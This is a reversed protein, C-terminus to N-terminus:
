FDPSIQRPDRGDDKSALVRFLEEPEDFYIFHVSGDCFAAQIGRPHNGRSQGAKAAKIHALLEDLTIDRPEAWEIELGPVEIVLFTNSSGDPIEAFSTQQSGDFVTGPGTIVVYSTHTHSSTADSPCRYFPISMQTLPRNSPSDWPENLKMQQYLVEQEAYPLILTRWSHLPEGNADTTHAPPFADHVDHYSQMALAIQKLNNACSTRRAAERAATVAPLLLAVSIICVLPLAVVGVILMIVLVSLGGSSGPPKHPPPDGFGSPITVPKGCSKCPGQQGVYQEDVKTTAGCHPCSFSIPM